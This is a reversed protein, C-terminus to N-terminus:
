SAAGILSVDVEIGNFKVMGSLPELASPGDAALVNANVGAEGEAAARRWGAGDGHGWGHPLSVTGPMLDEDLAAEVEVRGVASRVEVRAGDVIGRARADDPHIALACEAGEPKLRAVNHMWSNHSRRQRRGILRLAGSRGDGGRAVEAELHAVVEPIRAVLEAPALEVRRSPTPVARLFAGPEDDPLRVGGPPGVPMGLLRSLAPILLRNGARRLIANAGPARFMRLGAADALDVLIEAETRREDRPTAVAETVQAYPEPQMGVQVLPFDARELWDTAPLTYHARAGTENRYLDISVLLDLAGLAKALRPGNPASLLPNGAIVILARIRDRGPTLIEDALIGTPLSAAVAPFGGVRSPRPPRVADLLRALRALKLARAPVRAGGERDLHGTIANLAQVAWYAVTGNSGMNVGTSAYVTARRTRALARALEEITARPVGTVRAARDLDFRRAAARLGEIGEMDRTADLDELGEDFIVRLMGFLLFVDTDPRIFVQESGAVARATETRRPNVFIVRGGRGVIGRLRELARPMAVFSMQSVLPNSGLCLFLETRDLDPIPQIAYSGFMREAVAFKNQCDLSSANFFNRTGLAALFGTSYVSLAWNFATPNGIYVGIADPGHARRIRALEGGIDAIAREWSMAEWSGDPRRREPRALRDPDRHVDLMATGKVCAYGRTVPHAADPRLRVVERRAGQGHEDHDRRDERVDRVHAVLGCAAECIRCYTHLTREMM